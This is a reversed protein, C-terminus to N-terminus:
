GFEQARNGCCKRAAINSGFHAFAKMFCCSSRARGAPIEIRAGIGAPGFSSECLAIALGGDSIDHAAEALRRSLKASRKISASRM